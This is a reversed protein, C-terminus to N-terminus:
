SMRSPPSSRRWAQTDLDERAVIGMTVNPLDPLVGPEEVVLPPPCPRRPIPFYGLGAAAAARRALTDFATFVVEYRRNARELVAMAMRDPFLLNPSSVLPVVADPALVFDPARAWVM